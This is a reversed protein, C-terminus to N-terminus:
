NRIFISESILGGKDTGKFDCLHCIHSGEKPTFVSLMVAEGHMRKLHLKLNKKTTTKFDCLHCTWNKAADTPPQNSQHNETPILYM